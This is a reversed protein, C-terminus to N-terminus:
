CIPAVVDGRASRREDCGLGPASRSDGGFCDGPRVSKGEEYECFMSSGRRLVAFNDSKVLVSMCSFCLSNVGRDGFRSVEPVAGPTPPLLETVEGGREGVGPVM